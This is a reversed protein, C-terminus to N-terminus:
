RSDLNVWSRLRWLNWVALLAFIVAALPVTIRLWAATGSSVGHDHMILFVGRYEHPYALPVLAAAIALCAIALFLRVMNSFPLLM